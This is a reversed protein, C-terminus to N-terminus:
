RTLRRRSSSHRPQSFKRWPMSPQYFALSQECHVKIVSCGQQKDDAMTWALTVGATDLPLTFTYGCVGPGLEHVQVGELPRSASLVGTMGDYMLRAEKEIFPDESVKAVVRGGETVQLSNTAVDVVCSGNLSVVHEESQLM